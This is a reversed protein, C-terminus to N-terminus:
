DQDGAPPLEGEQRTRSPTSTEIEDFVAFDDTNETILRRIGHVLMTAVINADHIRKGKLDCAATLERLRATVSEPEDCFVTPPRSFQDVNHLAEPISLGLGNDAVPRTAVVLYERLIQGSLALHYGSPGADRILRRAEEHHERSRDTACLLVNTDAFVVEGVEITM